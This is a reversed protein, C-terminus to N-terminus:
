SFSPFFLFVHIFFFLSTLSPAFHWFPHKLLLNQSITSLPFYWKRSPPPITEPSIYLGRYFLLALLLYSMWVILTSSIKTRDSGFREAPNPIKFVLDPGLNLKTLIYAVTALVTLTGTSTKKILQFFSNMHVQNPLYLLVTTWSRVSKLYFIKQTFTSCVPPYM